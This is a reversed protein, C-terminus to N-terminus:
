LYAHILVAIIFASLLLAPMSALLKVMHSHTYAMASWEASQLLILSFLVGGGFYLIYFALEEGDESGLEELSSSYLDRVRKIPSTIRTLLSQLPWTAASSAALGNSDAINRM